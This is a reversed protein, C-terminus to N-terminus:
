ISQVKYIKHTRIVHINRAASTTFTKDCGEVTCPVNTQPEARLEEESPCHIEVVDSKEQDDEMM